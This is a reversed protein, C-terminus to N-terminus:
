SFGHKGKMPVFAFLSGDFSKKVPKGKERIMIELIQTHQDGVPAVIRGGESLDSFLKKPIFPCACSLIIRDFPAKGAIGESGDGAIVEVNAIGEKKLNEISAAALKPNIEAGYVRGKEGAIRSLLALVFGSGSGVELVKMGEKVSLLELMIAITSPQSITQSEGIPLADDAYAYRELSKPVFNERGVSLFADRVSKSKIAFGSIYEVLQSRRKSHEEGSM